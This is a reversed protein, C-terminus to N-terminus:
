TGINRLHEGNQSIWLAKWSFPHASLSLPLFDPESISLSFQHHSVVIYISRLCNERDKAVSSGVGDSGEPEHKLCMQGLTFGYFYCQMKQSWVPQSFYFATEKWLANGHVEQCYTDGEAVSISPWLGFAMEPVPISLLQFPVGIPLWGSPLTIPGQALTLWPSLLVQSLVLCLCFCDKLTESTVTM